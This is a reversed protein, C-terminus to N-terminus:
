QGGNGPSCDIYDFSDEDQRRVSHFVRVGCKYVEYRKNNDLHGM